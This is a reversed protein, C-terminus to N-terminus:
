EITKMIKKRHGLIVIDLEEKLEKETIKILTWGNIHNSQFTNIYQDLEIENL